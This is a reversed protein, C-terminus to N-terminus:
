DGVPEEEYDGISASVYDFDVSDPLDIIEIKTIDPLKKLSSLNGEITLLVTSQFEFDRVVTKSGMPVYDKDISDRIYFIFDCYATSFINIEISFTIKNSGTQIISFIFDKDKKTFEFSDFDIEVFEADFPMDSSAEAYPTLNIVAHNIEKKLGTKNILDSNDEIKILLDRIFQRATEADEQFSGLAAGLDPEIDMWESEECFRAWGSDKSIVLIKKKNEKSWKELSLLAIADPFESKNKGEQEFPAKAEFYM